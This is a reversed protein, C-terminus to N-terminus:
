TRSAVQEAFWRVFDQFEGASSTDVRPLTTRTIGYPELRAVGELAADAFATREAPSSAAFSMAPLDPLGSLWFLDFSDEKGTYDPQARLYDLLPPLDDLTFDIPNPQWGDHRAARRLAPKSNGGIMIPPRPRQFPKPEFALGEITFFEGRFVPEDETWLVNMAALAEDTRRGREEFPIGLVEFEKVAHGVGVSINVRGGSLQDITSLAKAIELPHHYPLVLVTSDIRVHQSAGAIFAMQSLCHVWWPGLRPVEFYPMGLHESVTMSDYGAKDVAAVVARADAATLEHTWAPTSPMHNNGPMAVAFKM